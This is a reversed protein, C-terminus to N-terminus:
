SQLVAVPYLLPRPLRLRRSFDGIGCLLSTEFMTEFMIIVLCSLRPQQQLAETVNASAPGADPRESGELIGRSGRQLGGCSRAVEGRRHHAALDLGGQPAVVYNWSKWPKPTPTPSCIQLEADQRSLM